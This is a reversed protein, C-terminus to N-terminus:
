ISQLSEDGACRLHEVTLMYVDCAKNLKLKIFLIRKLDNIKMPPITVNSEATIDFIIMIDEIAM